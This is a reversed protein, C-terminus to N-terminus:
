SVGDVINVDLIDALDLVKEYTDDDEVIDLPAIHISISSKNLRPEFFVYVKEENHQRSVWRMGQSEPNLKYIEEAFKRSFPYEISESTLLKAPTVGLKRLTITTLEVVKIEEEVRLETHHHNQLNEKAVVKLGPVYPVDHFVTEMLAGELSEAAYLVPIVDDREDLITSFRTNATKVPNFQNGKYKSPHVRHLLHGKKLTVIKVKSPSCDYPLPTSTPTAGKISPKVM